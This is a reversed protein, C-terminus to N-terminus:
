SSKAADFDVSVELRIRVGGFTLDQTRNAVYRLSPVGLLRQFLTGFMKAFERRDDVRGVVHDQALIQVSNDFAPIGSCRTDESIGRLFHDALGDELEDGFVKM